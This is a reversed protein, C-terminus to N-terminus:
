PQFFRKGSRPPVSQLHVWSKTYALDEIWLGIEILLPENALIFAHFQEITDDVPVVDVAKGLLHNSKMPIKAQDTIGKAAYIALHKAMSRYGSTVRLPKGYAERLRNIKVLLVMLNELHEPATIPTHLIEALTIM